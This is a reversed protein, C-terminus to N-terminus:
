WEVGVFKIGCGGVRRIERELKGGALGGGAGGNPGSPKGLIVHTVQRRGLHLSMRAGHESVLRKLKIDSVLPHTSGNVYIVLGDFIKPEQTRRLNDEESAEDRAGTLLFDTEGRRSSSPRSPARMSGPKRLMDAFCSVARARVKKPLFMGLRDDFDESGVGVTDSMRPGGSNGGRFQSNM